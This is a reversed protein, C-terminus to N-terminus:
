GRASGSQRSRRRVLVVAFGAGGLLLSWEAPEPVAMTVDVSYAGSGFKSPDGLQVFGDGLTFYTNPQNETYSLNQNVGIAMVYSGAALSENLTFDGGTTTAQTYNSDVFTASNGTGAFLTFYPDIGGGAFATSQFTVTEAVPVVITYLAVNNAIDNANDFLPATLDSWVLATNTADGLNGSYTTTGALASGATAVLTTALLASTLSTM